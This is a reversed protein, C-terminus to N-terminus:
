ETALAKYEDSAIYAALATKEEETYTKKYIVFGNGPCVPLPWPSLTSGYSKLDLYRGAEFSSAVQQQKFKEGGIPCVFPQEFFTLAEAPAMWVGLAISLWWRKQM